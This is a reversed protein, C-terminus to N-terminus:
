SACLLERLANNRLYNRLRVQASRKRTATQLSYRACLNQPPCSAYLLMRLARASILACVQGSCSFCRVLACACRAHWLLLKRSSGRSVLLEFLAVQVSTAWLLEASCNALFVQPCCKASSRKCLVLDQLHIIQFVQM